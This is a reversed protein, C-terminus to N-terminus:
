ARHRRSECLRCLMLSGVCGVQAHGRVEFLNGRMVDDPTIPLFWALSNVMVERCSHLVDVGCLGEVRAMVGELFPWRTSCLNTM